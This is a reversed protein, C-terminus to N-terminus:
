AETSYRLRASKWQGPGALNFTGCGMPPASTSL